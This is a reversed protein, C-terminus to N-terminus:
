ELVRSLWEAGNIKEKMGPSAKFFLRIFPKREGSEGNITKYNSQGEYRRLYFMGVPTKVKGSTGLEHLLKDEDVIDKHNKMRTM